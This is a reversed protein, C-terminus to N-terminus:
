QEEDLTREEVFKPSFINHSRGAHFLFFFLCVVLFFFCFCFSVLGEGGGGGFFFFFFNIIHFCCYRMLFLFRM